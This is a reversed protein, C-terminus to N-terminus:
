LTNIVEEMIIEEARSRCSNMRGVWEMPQEAKFQETIGEQRVMQAMLNELMEMARENADALHRGLTGNLMLRQYLAPHRKKLYERHMRGWKEIPRQDTEEVLLNPYYMGDKGLTYTGGLEEFLSKM